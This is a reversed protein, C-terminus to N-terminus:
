AVKKLKIVWALLNDKDNILTSTSEVTLGVQKAQTQLLEVNNANLAAKKLDALRQVHAKAEVRFAAVMALKQTLTLSGGQKFLTVLLGQVNTDLYSVKDEGELHSIKQNLKQRLKETKADGRPGTIDLQKFLKTVIDLIGNSALIKNLLQITKNNRKLIVSESHHTVLVVDGNLKCVRSIQALTKAQHSYEFGYQSTVCDFQGDNFPLQTSCVGPLITVKNSADSDIDSLHKNILEVDVSALDTGTYHHDRGLDHAVKAGILPISGNGTAIDLINAAEQYQSFTEHWFDLFAGEYNKEFANGFSTIFGTKWYEDWHQM